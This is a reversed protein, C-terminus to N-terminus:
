ACVGSVCLDAQGNVSGTVANLGTVSGTLATVSGTLGTISGTLGTVSGLYDSGGTYCEM